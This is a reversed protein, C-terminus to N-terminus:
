PQASIAGRKADRYSSSSAEEGLCCSARPRRAHSPRSLGNLEVLRKGIECRKGLIEFEPCSDQEDLPDVRRPATRGGPPAGVAPRRRREAGGARLLRGRGRRRWLTIPDATDEILRLEIADAVARAGATGEAGPEHAAKVRLNEAMLTAAREDLPYPESAVKFVVEV